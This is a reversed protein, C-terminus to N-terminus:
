FSVPIDLGARQLEAPRPESFDLHQDLDAEPEFLYLLLGFYM